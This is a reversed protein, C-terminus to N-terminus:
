NAMKQAPPQISLEPIYRIVTRESHVVLGAPQSALKAETTTKSFAPGWQNMDAFSDFLNLFNYQNYDGGMNVRSALYGKSNTKRMVAVQEKRIKEFEGARGPEVSTAILVALKPKYGPAPAVGVEPMSTIGYTRASVTLRQLKATLAAAGEQGLARVQPSPEDLEELGSVQRVIRFEGSEGFTATQWVSIEKVGAKKMAPLWENKMLDQWERMMVLQVHVVSVLYPQGTQTGAAKSTPQNQAFCFSALVATLLLASFGIYQEASSSHRRM